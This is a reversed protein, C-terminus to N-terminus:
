LYTKVLVTLLSGEGCVATISVSSKLIRKTFKLLSEMGKVVASFSTGMTLQWFTVEGRENMMIFLSDYQPIWRGDRFMGVHKALKFTHDCSCGFGTVSSMQKIFFTQMDKWKAIFCTMLFDNSIYNEPTVQVDVTVPDMSTSVFNQYYMTVLETTQKEKQKWSLLLEIDLFSVGESALMFIWNYLERTLGGKHFLVFPITNRDVFYKKLVRPDCTTIFHGARCRFIQCVLLVPENIGHITRPLYRQISGDQWHLPELSQKCRDEFCPLTAEAFIISYQIPPDWILVDPLLCAASIELQQSSTLMFQRTPASIIVASFPTKKHRELLSVIYSKTHEPLIAGNCISLISLLLLLLRFM